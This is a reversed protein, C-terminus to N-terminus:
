RGEEASNFSEQNSTLVQHLQKESVDIRLVGNVGTFELIDGEVFSLEQLMGLDGEFLVREHTKDSLSISKVYRKSNMEISFSTSTSRSYTAPNEQATYEDKM